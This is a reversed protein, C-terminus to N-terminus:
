APPAPSSASDMMAVLVSTAILLWYDPLLLSLGVALLITVAAIAWPMWPRVPVRVAGPGVATMTTTHLEVRSM